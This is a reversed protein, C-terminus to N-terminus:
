KNIYYNFYTDKINSKNVITNKRDVNENRLSVCLNLNNKKIKNKNNINIINSNNFNNIFTNNIIFKKDDNPKM